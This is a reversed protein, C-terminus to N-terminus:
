RKEKLAGIPFRDVGGIIAFLEKALTNLRGGSLDNIDETILPNTASELM